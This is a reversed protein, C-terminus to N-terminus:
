HCGVCGARKHGAAIAENIMAVIKAMTEDANRQQAIQAELIANRKCAASKENSLAENDRELEAIRAEKASQEQKLDCLKRRLAANDMEKAAVTENAITQLAENQAALAVLIARETLKGTNIAAHKAEAPLRAIQGDTREKERHAVLRQVQADLSQANIGSSVGLQECLVTKVTDGGPVEGRALVITIAKDLQTETYNSPRGGKNKEAM